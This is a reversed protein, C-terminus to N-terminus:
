TSQAFNKSKKQPVARQGTCPEFLAPMRFKDLTQEGHALQPAVAVKYVAYLARLHGCASDELQSVRQLRLRVFRRALEGPLPVSHCGRM